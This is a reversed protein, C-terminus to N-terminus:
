RSFAHMRLRGQQSSEGIGRRMGGPTRAPLESFDTAGGNGNAFPFDFTTKGSSGFTADLSGDTVNLKALAFGYRPAGVVTDAYGVALIHQGDALERVRYAAAVDGGFGITVRGTANFTTDRGGSATLRAIAMVSANQGNATAAGMSATGALLIKADTQVNVSTAVDDNYKADLNFQLITKGAGAFTSDLQGNASLKVVAFDYGTSTDGAVFGALLISDDPLVALDSVFDVLSSGSRDFSIISSGLSGFGYDLGGDSNFRTVGLNLNSNGAVAVSNAFVLKGTSQIGAGGLVSAVVFQPTFAVAYATQVKGGAFSADLTGDQAHGCVSMLLSLGAAVPFLKVVM